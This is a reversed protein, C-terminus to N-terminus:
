GQHNQWNKLYWTPQDTSPHRRITNIIIAQGPAPPDTVLQAAWSLSSHLIIKLNPVAMKPIILGSDTGPRSEHLVCNSIKTSKWIINLEIRTGTAMTQIKAAHGGRGLVTRSWSDKSESFKVSQREISSVVCFDELRFDTALVPGSWSNQCQTDIWIAQEVVGIKLRVTVGPDM